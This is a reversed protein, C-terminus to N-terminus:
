FAKEGMGENVVSPHATDEVRESGAKAEDDQANLFSDLPSVPVMKVPAEGEIALKAREFHHGRKEDGILTM